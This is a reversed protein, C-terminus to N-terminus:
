NKKELLAINGPVRTFHKDLLLYTYVDFNDWSKSNDKDYVNIPLLIDFQLHSNAPANKLVGAITYNHGQIDDDVKIVKGVPNASGFYKQAIASTILAKNPYAMANSRSGDVLPYDFIQLFTSDALFINKEDFKQNGVTVIRQQIAIRAQNTIQPLQKKLSPGMAPPVVASKVGAVNGAVRYIQGADKNFADYSRENAVWLFILISCAMGTSLGIINLVTFLKYKRLNRLAIVFYNKLMATSNLM